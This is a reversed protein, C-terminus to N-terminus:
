SSTLAPPGQFIVMSGVLVGYDAVQQLGCEGEFPEIQGNGNLDVGNLLSEMVQAITESAATSSDFDQTALVQHELDVVRDLWTRVNSVCVRILEVNTQLTPWPAASHAAETLDNDILDLFRPIGFGLGPNEPRGDGNLDDNTGLLINVTHEAHIHRGSINTSGSSLGAHRAAIDAEALAGDLLSDGERGADLEVLIQFLATTLEVPVYGSYAIEGAPAATAATERTILVSNYITPLMRGAEDNYALVGEGLADLSLRGLPLLTEDDTRQLWVAYFAGSGPPTLGQVRLNVTDGPMSTTGYSLSGFDPQLTAVPLAAVQTTPVDTIPARTPDVGTNTPTAVPARSLAAALVIIVVVLVGLLGTGFIWLGRSLRNSAPVPSEAPIVAMPTAEIIDTPPLVPATRSREPLSTETPSVRAPRLSDAMRGEIAASFANAFAMASPYRAEPEKVLVRQLVLDIEQGLGQTVGTISPVPASMHKLMLQMPTDATYPLEGSLMQYTVVGLSYIDVGPGIPLGQLQEPAIYAPTGVLGGTTTLDGGAGIMKVIGFDALMVNGATMYLINDPKVDRHIVGQSHAYDLASAVQRVVRDVEEPPMAGRKIRDALSGGQIYPMVLFLINDQNGYDYLPLINPHQLRAITRAELRFRSIFQEDHGPHPPLVKIAVYRDVDAQYGKYVAAMGGAGIQEVIEYKGLTRGNLSMTM